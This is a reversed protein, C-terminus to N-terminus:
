IIEYNMADDEIMNDKVKSLLINDVDFIQKIYHQWIELEESEIFTEVQRTRKFYREVVNAYVYDFDYDKKVLNDETLM